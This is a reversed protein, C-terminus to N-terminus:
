CQKKIKWIGTTHYFWIVLLDKGMQLWSLVPVIKSGEIETWKVAIEATPIRLYEAIYILEVDFAWREVHLNSFCMRATTRTMLKFGCQTDRISRAALLWVLIHFGKMLITRFISRSAIAEEELHARSGCVLGLAEEDSQGETLDSLANQLKKIEKFTTAGDADAFLLQKGRSSLMGLRVAGGKGRNKELTLVRVKECGYKESYKLAVKTTDDKSGDDVIIVEYSKDSDLAAVEELYELCEDLMCPLRKEENYAPVIVSLHVAPADYITPFPLREKTKMDLFYKEKEYRILKFNTQSLYAAVLVVAIAGLPFAVLLVIM